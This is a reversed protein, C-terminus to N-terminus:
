PNLQKGKFKYLEKTLDLLQQTLVRLDARLGETEISHLRRQESMEAIHEQRKLAMEKAHELREEKSRNECALNQAKLENKVFLVLSVIIVLGLIAQGEPKVLLEVPVGLVDM